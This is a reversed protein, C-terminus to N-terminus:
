KGEIIKIQGWFFLGWKQSLYRQKKRERFWCFTFLRDWSFIEISCVTDMLPLPLWQVSTTQYKKKLHWFSGEHHCSIPFWALPTPSHTSTVQFCNSCSKNRRKKLNSPFKLQSLKNKLKRILNWMKWLNSSFHIRFIITCLFFVNISNSHPWEASLINTLDKRSIYKVCFNHLVKKWELRQQRLNIGGQSIPIM